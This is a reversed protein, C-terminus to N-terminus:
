IEVANRLVAYLLQLPGALIGTEMKLTVFTEGPYCEGGAM